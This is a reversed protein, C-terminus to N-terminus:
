SVPVAVFRERGVAALDAQYLLLIGGPPEEFFIKDSQINPDFMYNAIWDACMNGERYTHQLQVEWEKNMWTRIRSILRSERIAGGGRTLVTVAILSDSELIVRRFGAQWAEELGHLMGWLEAKYASCIGLRFAYGGLWCGHTNRIVVGCAALGPNGKAEGDTNIKIYGEKPFQWAINLQNVGANGRLGKCVTTEEVDQILRRIFEMKFEQPLVEEGHNVKNRWNWIKWCTILFITLWRESVNCNVAVGFNHVMWSKTDQDFFSWNFNTSVLNEWIGKATICDRLAHLLSEPERKCCPCLGDGGSWRAIRSMTLLRQHVMMWAFIKVKQPGKWRWLQKWMKQSVEDTTVHPSLCKYIARVTVSNSDPLCWIRRDSGDAPSPPLVNQFMDVINRPRWMGLWQSNWKGAPTVLESVRLNESIVHREGTLVDELTSSSLLWRDKWFRVDRGDGVEWVLRDELAHWIRCLNAWLSSDGRRVEFLSGARKGSKYKANLVQVWLHHPESHMRWAKKALFSDNMIELRKLGLGGDAKPSTVIEWSIAHHKRRNETDGWIFDRQMREMNQCVSAPLKYSQMQFFPISALVSQSLTIRRAQSLCLQHWNNLRDRVKEIIGEYLTKSVRGHQMMAGLYRGMNKVRKFGSTQTIRDMTEAPTNKSFFMCTKEVSMKGGSMDEFLKLCKLLTYIQEEKAEMFVMLDDAFVLHSIKPGGSGVRIPKWIGGNVATTIIHSLKEMALVFLYPSLPDGQRLGRSHEFEGTKGGNWLVNIRSTTVCQMILRILAELIRIEELTRRMFQWSVRDYAKILDIKIAMYAKRGRMKNMSHILEQVIIINDQIQRNPVFSVRYPSVIKEMVNKLRSVITKSSLKYLVSCLSIPCFQAIKDPKKTKPILVLLTSNIDGIEEPYAWLRKIADCVQIKMKNWQRQFFIAPYGDIGSAKYPGMACMGKWIEQDNPPAELSLLEAEDLRPWLNNSMLRRRNQTEETFLEKYFTCVLEQLEYPDEIWVNSNCKLKTIKNRCRRIVTKLHYYRTNRDGDEIWKHRSKKNVEEAELTLDLERQLHEELEQLRLCDGQERKERVNAIRDSLQRKRNNINGYIDKNWKKLHPTFEALMLKIETDTHWNDDMLKGFGPHDLWTAMFRFPRDSWGQAQNRASLLLPSHDSLIRPLVQTTANEFNLRWQVNACIRDLTKFVRDLHNWKPGQWTFKAGTSIVEEVRCRDFFAQFRQCKSLDPPSGGIKKSACRIDNFDGAMIWPKTISQSIMEMEEWMEHRIAEQPNAYVATCLFTRTGEIVIRMHIYQNAQNIVDVKIRKSDWMVWIGGSFGSAEEIIVKDFNIKRMLKSSHTGHTRTEMLAVLSVNHKQVMMKLTRGLKSKAVGRCNWFVMSM